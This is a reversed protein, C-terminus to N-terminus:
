SSTLSANRDYGTFESMTAEGAAAIGRRGLVTAITRCLIRLDLVVSNTRAYEVDLDFRQEWSLANRGSVQALGTIGPAVSHRMRHAQSYLPLYRVLLPRPGVLSMEGRLVNFLEPLEDLSTARLFQGFRTLRDGDPRLDGSADRADTMSRFKMLEFQREDRGPRRQRFIVPSGVAVRVLLAVIAAVLLWLPAALLTVM